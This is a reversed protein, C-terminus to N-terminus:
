ETSDTVENDNNSHLQNFLEDATLDPHFKDGLLSFADNCFDSVVSLNHQAESLLSRGIHEIAKEDLDHNASLNNLVDLLQNAGQSISARAEIMANVSDLANRHWPAQSFQRISEQEKIANLEQQKESSLERAAKVTNNAEKVQKALEKKEKTHSVVLDEILEKVAAKDGLDVEESNIVALQQPEPLQRLKRLERTGLGIRQSAEFFEEGFENFNLLNNDITKRSVQLKHQCFDDWTSVTVLKKDKDRYTLGKYSKSEKISQLTRLNSVTVLKSLFDFARVQGLDLLVQELREVSEKTDIVAKQQETSLDTSVDNM